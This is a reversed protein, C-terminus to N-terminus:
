QLQNLAAVFENDSAFDNAEKLRFVTRQKEENLLIEVQEGKVFPSVVANLREYDGYFYEQLLPLIRGFWVKKLQPVSEIGIFFTHGIRYDEGILARIRANVKRFISNLKVPGVDKVMRDDPFLPRFSFRRRLALDLSAISRDATNMTGVIYVNAPVTFESKSYQLEVPVCYDKGERKSEEILTILEGFIKAINGRNIEDIVFLYDNEKDLRAEECFKRFSGAEIKYSIQGEDTVPKIGEIFDEYSYSQHFTIFRTNKAGASTPALKAKKFENLVDELEDKWDDALSWKSDTKTFVFPEHRVSTGGGDLSKTAHTQLQGWITASINRNGSVAGKARIFHHNAIQPVLLDKGGLDDMVLAIVQWWPLQQVYVETGAAGQGRYRRQFDRMLDTALKTKGTGPPGFFITNLCDLELENPMPTEKSVANTSSGFVAARFDPNDHKKYSSTKSRDLEIAVQSRAQEANSQVHSLTPLVTWFAKPRGDFPTSGSTLQSGSILGFATRGNKKTLQACYRQGVTLQLSNRKCSFVLREDDPQLKHTSVISRLFNLFVNLDEADFQRSVEDFTGDDEGARTIALAKLKIYLDRNAQFNTGMVGPKGFKRDKFWNFKELEDRLLPNSSLNYDVNVRVRDTEKNGDESTWYTKETPGDQGTFVESTISLLAYVGAEEGTIWLIVKDGVKISDRHSSVMWTRLDENALCEVIKYHKPNAQFAWYNARSSFQSHFDAIVKNLNELIDASHRRLDEASNITFTQRVVCQPFRETRSTNLGQLVEPDWTAKPERTESIGYCVEFNNETKTRSYLIVPYIGEQITQGYGLFGVWPTDTFNGQGFSVKVPLDRYQTTNYETTRLSARDRDRSILQSNEVFRELLVIFDPAEKDVIQFGERRLIAFAKSEQGGSFESNEITRKFHIRYAYAMVLKPPYRKGEHILDYYQSNLNRPVGARDIEEIARLMAERKIEEFDMEIAM